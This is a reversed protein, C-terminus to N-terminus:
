KRIEEWAAKCDKPGDPKRATLVRQLRTANDQWVRAKGEAKALAQASEKAKRAGEAELAAVADNQRKIEAALGTAQAQSAELKPQLEARVADAGAKREYAVFGGVAGLAAIGVLAYILLTPM